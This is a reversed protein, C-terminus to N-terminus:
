LGLWAQAVHLYKPTHRDYIDNEKAVEAVRMAGDM